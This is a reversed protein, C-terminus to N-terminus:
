EYVPIPDSASLFTANFIDLLDYNSWVPVIPTMAVADSRLPEWKGDALKWGFVEGGDYVFDGLWIEECYDGDVYYGVVLPNNSYACYEVVDNGPFTGVVKYPLESEPLAPGTWGVYDVGDITHTPTEGEKAVHGYIYAVPEGQPKRRQSAIRKGILYGLIMASHNRTNAWPVYVDNTTFVSSPYQEAYEGATFEVNEEAFSNGTGIYITHNGGDLRLHIDNGDSDHLRSNSIYLSNNKEGSTGRLVGQNSSGHLDCKDMYVKINAADASGGIYFAAGNHSSTAEYGDPMTLMDKLTANRVYAATGTGSFYIGGHGYGEYTGGNVYLAGHNSLGSHTGIAHCDNLTLQGDNRIGISVVGYYNGDESYTYDSYAKINCASITGTAYNMFAYARGNKSIAALDCGSITLDGYNLVGVPYGDSATASIDCKTINASANPYVVISNATGVTEKVIVTANSVNLHGSGVLITGNNSYGKTNGIYSGGILTVNSAVQIAIAMNGDTNTADIVSGQLRGDIILNGSANYFVQIDNSSLRHGGLNITMDVSPKIRTAETTDKLLVVYPHGQDTYVGAVATAKTADANTGITGNNVDTVAANMSSYYTFDYMEQLDEVTPLGGDMTIEVNKDAM